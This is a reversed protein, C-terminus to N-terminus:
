VLKNVLCLFRYLIYNCCYHKKPRGYLFLKIDLPHIKDPRLRLLRLIGDIELILNYWLIKM